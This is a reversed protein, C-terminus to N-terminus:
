LGHLFHHYGLMTMVPVDDFYLAVVGWAAPSIIGPTLDAAMVYHETM